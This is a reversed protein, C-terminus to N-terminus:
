NWVRALFGDFNDDQTGVVLLRGDPQAILKAAAYTNTGIAITATGATGFEPDDMSNQKFRRLTFGGAPALSLDGLVVVAGDPQVVPWRANTLPAVSVTGFNGIGTDGVFGANVRSWSTADLFVFGGGVNPVMQGPPTSVFYDPATGVTMDVGGTASCGKVAGSALSLAVWVSGDPHLLMGSTGGLTSGTGTASLQCTGSTGYTSDLTGSSKWRSVVALKNTFHYTLVLADGSPLAFTQVGNLNGLGLTLPAQGTNNFKTDPTGDLTTRAVVATVTGSSLCSIFGDAPTAGEHIDLFLSGQASIVNARGTGGGFTADLVGDPTYRVLTLTNTRHGAVVIDGNLMVKVDSAGSTQSAFVQKVVGGTGFTTDLTGPLGRVFTDLMAIGTAGNDVLETAILELTFPGQPTTAAIHLTLTADTAGAPITLADVTTDTPVKALKVEIPGTSSGAREVKVPITATRSQVMFLTKGDGVTVRIGTSVTGVPPLGSDPSPAGSDPDATPSPSDSTFGTCAFVSATVLGVVAFLAVRSM